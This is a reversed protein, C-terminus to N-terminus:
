LAGMTAKFWIKTGERSSPSLSQFHMASLKCQVEALQGVVDRLPTVPFGRIGDHYTVKSSCQIVYVCSTM